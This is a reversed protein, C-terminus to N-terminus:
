PSTTATLASGSISATLASGSMRTTLAGPQGQPMAFRPGAALSCVASVAVVKKATAAGTVAATSAAAAASRKSVASTGALVASSAAAAAGRKSANATGALGAGTVASVTSVKKVTDLGSVVILGASTTRAAKVTAALGTLAAATTGTVAIASSGLQLDSFFYAGYTTNPIQNSTGGNRYIGTSSSLPSTGFPFTASGGDSYRYGPSGQIFSCVIYNVGASLSVPSSLTFWDCWDNSPLGTLTSMDFQALKTTTDENWLQWLASTAPLGGTKIWYRGKTAPASSSVTFRNGIARAGTDPDDSAPTQSTYLSEGSM